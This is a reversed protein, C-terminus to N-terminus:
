LFPYAGTLWRATAFRTTTLAHNCPIPPLAAVIQVEAANEPTRDPGQGRKRKADHDCAVSPARSEQRDGGFKHIRFTGNLKPNVTYTVIARNNADVKKSGASAHVDVTM